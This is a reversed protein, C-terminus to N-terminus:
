VFDSVFSSFFFFRRRLETRGAVQLRIMFVLLLCPLSGFCAQSVNRFRELGKQSTRSCEQPPIAGRYGLNNSKFIRPSTIPISIPAEAEFSETFNRCLGLLCSPGASTSGGYVGVTTQSYVTSYVRATLFPNVM